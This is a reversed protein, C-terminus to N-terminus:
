CSSQPRCISHRLHAPWRGRAAGSRRLSAAASLRRGGVAAQSAPLAPRPLAGRAASGLAPLARPLARHEGGRGGGAAGGAGPRRQTGPSGGARVDYAAASLGDQLSHDDVGRPRGSKRRLHGPGTGGCPRPSRPALRSRCRPTRRVLPVATAGLSPDGRATEGGECGRRALHARGATRAGSGSRVSATRPTRFEASHCPRQAISGRGRGPHSASGLGHPLARAGGRRGDVPPHRCVQATRSHGHTGGGASEEERRRQGSGADGGTGGRPDHAPDGHTHGGNVEHASRRAFAAAATTMALKQPYSQLQPYPRERIPHPEAWTETDVAKHRRRNGPRVDEPLSSDTGTRQRTSRPQVDWRCCSGRGYGHGRRVCAMAASRCGPGTCKQHCDPTGPQSRM